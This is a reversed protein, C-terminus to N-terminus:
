MPMSTSVFVTFEASSGKVAAELKAVATLHDQLTSFGVARFGPINDSLCQYAASVNPAIVVSELIEPSLRSRGTSTAQLTQGSVLFVHGPNVAM